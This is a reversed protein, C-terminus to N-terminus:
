LPLLVLESYLGDLDRPEFVSSRYLARGKRHFGRPPTRFLTSDAVLGLTKQRITLTMNIRELHRALILPASCYLIMSYPIGVSRSLLGALRGPRWLRRKAVLYAYDTGDAVVGQLCDYASHENFIRRQQEDLLAYVTKPDFSVSPPSVLLTEPNFLVPLFLRRKSLTVFGMRRLMQSTIENPTLNTYSLSRDRHATMLLAVALNRHEPRVYWSTCNCVIASKDGVQRQACITGIFGVIGGDVTIVFGLNSGPPSWDYDFLARWVAAPIRSRRFGSQLFGCLFEIDGPIVARIQITPQTASGEM